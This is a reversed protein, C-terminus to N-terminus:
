EKIEGKFLEEKIIKKFDKNNVYNRKIGLYEQEVKSIKIHSKNFNQTTNLRSLISEILKHRIALIEVDLNIARRRATLIQNQKLHIRISMKQEKKTLM